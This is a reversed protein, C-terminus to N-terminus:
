EPWMLIVQQIQYGQRSSYAQKQQWEFKNGLTKRKGLSTLKLVAGRIGGGRFSQMQVILDKIPKRLVVVLVVVAVPWVLSAIISAIFGLWDM